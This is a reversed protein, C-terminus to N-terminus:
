NVLVEEEILSGVKEDYLDILPPDGSPGMARVLRRAEAEWEYSWPDYPVFPLSCTINWPVKKKRRMSVGQQSLPELVMM